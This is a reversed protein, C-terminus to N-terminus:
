NQIKIKQSLGIQLKYFLEIKLYTEISKLYTIMFLIIVCSWIITLYNASINSQKRVHKMQFYNQYVM